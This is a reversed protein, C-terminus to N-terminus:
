ARPQLALLGGELVQELLGGTPHLGAAIRFSYYGTIAGVLVAAQELARESPAAASGALLQAVRALYSHFIAALPRQNGTGRLLLGRAQHLMQLYVPNAEFFAEHGRVLATIRSELTKELAVDRLYSGDLLEVAESLLAAILADKSEFYNYFAGKGLDAANTVDEVRTTEIGRAAILNAAADLLSRRTRERRRARRAPQSM